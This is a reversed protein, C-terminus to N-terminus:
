IITSKVYFLHSLGVELFAWDTRAPTQYFNGIRITRKTVASAFEGLCSIAIHLRVDALAHKQVALITRKAALTAM